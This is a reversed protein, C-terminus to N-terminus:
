LTSTYSFTFVHVFKNYVSTLAYLYKYEYARWCTSIVQPSNAHQSDYKGVTDGVEGKVSERVAERLEQPWVVRGKGGTAARWVGYLRGYVRRRGAAGEEEDEEILDIM